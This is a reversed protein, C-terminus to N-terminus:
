KPIIEISAGLPITTSNKIEIRNAKLITSNGNFLVNGQPKQITVNEGIKIIDAEYVKGDGSISDNQLYIVDSDNIYPVKNHDSVCVAIDELDGQYDIWDTFGSKLEGTAKNYISITSQFNVLDVTINNDRRYISIDMEKPTDTFIHMSPDGFCHFIEFTYKASTGWTEKMRMLGQDMIKGIPYIASVVPTISGTNRNPFTKRLGPVPWIADFMGLAFADNCGSYSEKTAGIIAVCGGNNKRLFTEAFCTRGNYKGTLCNISFIIPLKNGNNLASIHSQSYYPDGWITINGHDRHLLYFVGNNISTNVDNANGNWAFAPKKLEDPIANGYSYQGKNWYRPNVNSETKYIRTINKNKTLIYNRIDESTEAFRRDAYGDNNNDQFYACHVGTKYFNNDVLPNKEYNIIKEVVVNAEEATSVPLRGRSIDPIYDAPGGMCGYYLDTVYSNTTNANIMQGPVDEHDGIILLYDLSNM